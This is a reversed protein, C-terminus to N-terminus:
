HREPIQHRLIPIWGNGHAKARGSPKHQHHCTSRLRFYVIPISFFQPLTYPPIHIDPLPPSYHARDHRTPLKHNPQKDDADGDDDNDEDEELEEEEEVDDGADDGGADDDGDINDM